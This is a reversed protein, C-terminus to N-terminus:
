KVGVFVLYIHNSKGKYLHPFNHESPATIWELLGPEHGELKDSDLNQRMEIIGVEPDTVIHVHFNSIECEHVQFLCILSQIETEGSLFM